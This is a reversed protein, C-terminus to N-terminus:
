FGEPLFGQAPELGAEAMPMGVLVGDPVMLVGRKNAFKRNVGEPETQKDALSNGSVSASPVIPPVITGAPKTTPVTQAKKFSEAMPMAYSEMAVAISNGICSVVDTAPHVAMLETERSARLNQFLKPWPVLGARKIIKEFTTRM